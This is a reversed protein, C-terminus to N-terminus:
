VRKPLTSVWALAAAGLVALAGGALSRLTPREGELHYSFPIIVLPTIAVIPLVVGTPTTKLAWQYCSVGLAPGALGNLLVWPWAKRWRDPRAAIEDRRAGRGGLLADFISDRKVFLVLLAAVAVGGLIRQCAATIGDIEESAATAVAFAKRSMVAGLAQCFAAVLGFSLGALLERRALQLHKGPALALAVGVLIVLGCGIEAASLKTGLWLWEILAAIPSSLCLTLMVSLRSGLRPLAQFLAMDGIGFGICGSLLFIPFASGALGSRFGHSYIALLAAAFCLRWFNAETGGLLKATRNGCVASISFLVTTLFASFMPSPQVANFARSDNRIAFESDCSDWIRGSSMVFQHTDSPIATHAAPTLNLMKSLIFLM